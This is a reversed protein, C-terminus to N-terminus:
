GADGELRSARDRFSEVETPDIRPFLPQGKLIAAGAPVDLVREPGAYRFDSLPGDGGM